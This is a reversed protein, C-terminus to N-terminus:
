DGTGFRPCLKETEWDVVNGDEDKVDGPLITLELCVHCLGDPFMGEVTLPTCKYYATRRQKPKRSTFMGDGGEKVIDFQLAEKGGPRKCFFETKGTFSMSENENAGETVAKISVDGAMIFPVMVAVFVASLVSLLFCGASMGKKQSKEEDKRM